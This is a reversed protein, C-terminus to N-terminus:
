PAPSPPLLLAPAQTLTFTTRGSLFLSLGTAFSASGVGLLGAGPKVFGPGGVGEARLSLLVGGVVMGIAGIAAMPGGVDHLIRKGPRVTFLVDGTRDALSFRPSETLGLGGFLFEANTRGDVVVGCPATCVRRAVAFEWSGGGGGYTGQTSWGVYKTGVVQRLEVGSAAAEPVVKVHVRPAGPGPPLPQAPPMPPAEGLEAKCACLLLLPTLLHKKTM